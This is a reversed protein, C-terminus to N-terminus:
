YSKLVWVDAYYNGSAAPTEVAAELAIGCKVAAASGGVNVTQSVPSLGSTALAGTGDVALEVTDQPALLANTSSGILYDGKATTSDVFANPILGEVVVKVFDGSAAAEAAIGCFVSTNAAGGNLKKVVAFMQAITSQSFDFCVADGVALAEGARFVEVVQRASQTASDEGVGSEDSRYVKQIYRSSSM